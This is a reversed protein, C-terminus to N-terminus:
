IPYNRSNENSIKLQKILTDNVYLFNYTTLIYLEIHIGITIDEFESQLKDELYNDRREATSSM